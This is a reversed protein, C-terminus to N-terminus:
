SPRAQRFHTKYIRRQERVEKALSSIMKELKEYQACTRMRSKLEEISLDTERKLGDLVADGCSILAKNYEMNELHRLIRERWEGPELSAAFSMATELTTKTAM